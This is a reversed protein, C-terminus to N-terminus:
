IISAFVTSLIWSILNDDIDYATLNPLLLDHAVCDFAKSLDTLIEEVTKNNDFYETWEELLTLM